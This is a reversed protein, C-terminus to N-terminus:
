SKAPADVLARTSEVFLEDANLLRKALGQEYLYRCATQMAKRNAELGYSYFNKGLAEITEDLEQGYWPLSSYAWKIRKAEIDDLQKSLSYAQFVKQPLDPQETALARRIAIVHMIPFIQTRRFYDKEVSRHDDFLRKIDPNRKVFAQPEAPHFIADVQGSLLLDSEDQDAPGMTIDIDEPVIREWRSASGTQADASDKKTQVWRIDKPEVGYEDKIMGRIWTLGSSSYGVTAVKRGKLDAPTKIPGDTRVFISKHRFVKLIFVPLLQYDRFDDNCYALLYPILGVESVDHTAPGNFVHRNLDGIKSQVFQVKYGDITVKGERIATVRDYPYGAITLPRDNEAANTPQLAFMSTCASAASAGLFSRRSCSRPNQRSM